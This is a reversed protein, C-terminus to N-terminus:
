EGSLAKGFRKAVASKKRAQKSPPISFQTANMGFGQAHERFTIGCASCTDVGDVSEWSHPSCSESM